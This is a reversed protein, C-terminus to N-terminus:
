VNLAGVDDNQQGVKESLKVLSDNDELAENMDDSDTLDDMDDESAPSPKM